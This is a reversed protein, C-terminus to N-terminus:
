VGEERITSDLHLGAEGQTIPFSLKSGDLQYLQAMNQDLPQVWVLHGAVKLHMCAESYPMVALVADDPPQVAVRLILALHSIAGRIHAYEAVEPNLSKGVRNLTQLSNVLSEVTVLSSGAISVPFRPGVWYLSDTWPSRWERQIKGQYILGELKNRATGVHVDFHQALDAITQPGFDRLYDLYVNQEVRVPTKRAM